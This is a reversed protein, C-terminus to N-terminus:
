GQARSVMGEDRDVASFFSPFEASWGCERLRANSVRKNTVGRKRNEDVPGFPPCAKGFRAALWRYIEVQATPQDDALNYIGPPLDRLTLALGSAADNRHIQNVWRLGDGEIVAEGSFFKRLLVSRGPGYIGALRVVAGGRALVFDETARLIRGTERGPNAEASEDVWGGDTQAYVSTSSCFVFRQPSLETILNVCGDHYVAQYAEAGGRGSSACHLVAFPGDGVKGRLLRVSEASSIDCSYVDFPECELEVVSEQSYTVGIVECGVEALLRATAVGIYGCGAVIYKM